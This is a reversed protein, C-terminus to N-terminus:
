DWYAQLYALVSTALSTTNYGGELASVLRNSSHKKALEILERSIWGYDSETLMFQAMDDNAHGDFGASVLILQPSFADIAPIWKQTIAERFTESRTYAPLPVNVINNRDEIFPTEPYFPHQFVSCFLVRPDDQFISETGNGHHVDFDVIAIRELRHKHLAHAAAVAINNFICFGM